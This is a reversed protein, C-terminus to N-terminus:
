RHKEELHRRYDEEDVPVERLIGRLSRTLPALERDDTEVSELTRFYDAVMRSISKGRRRAIRKAREILEQELRLTLKTRMTRRFSTSDGVLRPGAIREAHQSRGGARGAGAGSRPAPQPRASQLSLADALARVSRQRQALAGAGHLNVPIKTKSRASLLITRSAMRNQRAGIFQEGDLILVDRDGRNVAAFVPVTASGLETITLTGAVIADALLDFGLATDDPSLLPYTTLWEHRQAAAPSLKLM